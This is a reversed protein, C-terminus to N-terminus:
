KYESAKNPKTLIFLDVFSSWQNACLANGLYVIVLIRCTQFPLIYITLSFRLVVKGFTLGESWLYSIIFGFVGLSFTYSVVM